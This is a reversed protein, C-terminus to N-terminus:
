YKKCYIGEIFDSQVKKRLCISSSQKYSLSQDDDKSKRVKQRHLPCVKGIAITLAVNGEKDICKAPQKTKTLFLIHSKLVKVVYLRTM